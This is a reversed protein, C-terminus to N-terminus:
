RMRCNGSRTLWTRSSPVWGCGCGRSKSSLLLSINLVLWFCFVSYFFPLWYMWLDHPLSEITCSKPIVTTPLSWLHHTLLPSFTFTLTACTLQMVLYLHINCETLVVNYEPLVLICTKALIIQWWCAWNCYM